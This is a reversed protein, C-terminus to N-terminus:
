HVRDFARNGNQSSMFLLKDCRKGWTNKVMEAKAKNKPHTVVWCFIRNQKIIAAAAATTTTTNATQPIISEVDLQQAKKWIVRDAQCAPAIKSDLVM